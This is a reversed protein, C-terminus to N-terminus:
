WPGVTDAPYWPGLRSIGTPRGVRAVPLSDGLNALRYKLRSLWVNYQQRAGTMRADDKREWERFTIYKVVMAHFDRPLPPEDTDQVLLDGERRADVVYDIAGAPTPWLLFGQYAPRTAGIGIRALETGTGSDELLTVVGTAAAGLYVDTVEIWDTIAAAVSLATVGTLTVSVTRREGTSVIGALYALPTEAATSVLFLESADSPQQAVAVRGVPVWHSPTGTTTAPDPDLRRYASLRLAELHRDNTTETIQRIYAYAEPLAYRARGSASTFTYPTDAELLGEIAPEALIARLGENGYRKLRTVVDSPPSSPYGLDEYAAALIASWEM